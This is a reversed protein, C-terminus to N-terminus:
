KAIIAFVRLGDDTQKSRTTVKVGLTKAATQLGSQVSNPQRGGPDLITWEGKESNEVIQDLVDSLVSRRKPVEKVSGLVAVAPREASETGKKAPKKAPTKKAAPTKKVAPKKTTKPEAVPAEEPQNPSTAEVEPTDSSRVRRKRGSKGIVTEAM